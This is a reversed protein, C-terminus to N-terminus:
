KQWERSGVAHLYERAERTWEANSESSALRSCDCSAIVFEVSSILCNVPRQNDMM